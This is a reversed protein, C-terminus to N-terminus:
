LLTGGDVTNAGAEVITDVVDGASITGNVDLTVSVTNTVRYGTIVQEGPQCGPPPPFITICTDSERQGGDYVAVLQYNSTGIQEEAIDLGVLADIVGAMQEANANVAEEASKSNATVGATVMFKDPQM